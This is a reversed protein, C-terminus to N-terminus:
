TRESRITDLVQLAATLGALDALAAMYPSRGDPLCRSQQWFTPDGGLVFRAARSLTRLRSNRVDTEYAETFSEVISKGREAFYEPFTPMHPHLDLRRSAEMLLTAALEGNRQRESGTRPRRQRLEVALARCANALDLDSGPFQSDTSVM